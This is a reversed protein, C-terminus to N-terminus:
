IAVARMLCENEATTLLAGDDRNGWDEVGLWRTM